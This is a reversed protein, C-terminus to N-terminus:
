FQGPQPAGPDGFRKRYEVSNIFGRVMTRYDGPHANLYALWANFGAPEADRRLYGFYEMLVFADNFMRTRVESSEVVDRLVQARTKAMQELDAVLQAKNSLTVGATQELKDVYAQNSLGDYIARFDAREVWENTFADRNAFVEAATQGTVRQSDRTFERYGPNLGLSVRYFRIVFNGKLMFEASRFFRSSVEVRDCSSPAFPDAPRPCTDLSNVWGAVGASEGERNLFDVYHMRVFFASNDIPNAGTAAADNDTITVTAVGTSGITFGGTPNSLSVTFTEQAANFTEAYADDTIFIQFTKSMEGATFRLTGLTTTFDCRESATGTLVDCHPWVRWCM